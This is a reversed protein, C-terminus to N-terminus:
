LCVSKSAFDCRSLAILSCNPIQITDSSFDQVFESKKRWLHPEQAVLFCPTAHPTEWDNWHPKKKDQM